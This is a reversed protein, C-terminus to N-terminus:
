LKAIEEDSMKISNRVFGAGWQEDEDEDDDSSESASDDDSQEDKVSMALANAQSKPSLGPRMSKVSMTDREIMPFTTRELIEPNNTKLPPLRHESEDDRPNYESKRISRRNLVMPVSLQSDLEIDDDEDDSLYRKRHKRKPKDTQEKKLKQKKEPKAKEAERTECCM